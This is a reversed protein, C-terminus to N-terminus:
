PSARVWVVKSDRLLCGVTFYLKQLLLGSTCGVDEFPDEGWGTEKLHHGFTSYPEEM